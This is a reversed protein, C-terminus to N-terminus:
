IPRLYPNESGTIYSMVRETVECQLQATRASLSAIDARLSASDHNRDLRYFLQELECTLNKHRESFEEIQNM